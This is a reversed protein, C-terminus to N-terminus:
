GRRARGLEIVLTRLAAALSQFVRLEGFDLDLGVMTQAITPSVGSLVCECGLLGVARIMRDLHLVTSTDIDEVGTLDLVARRVPAQSVRELLEETVSAARADNLPGILPVTLVGEWVQVIPTGLNDIIALQKRILEDNAVRDSIDMIYGYFHTAKGEADRLVVTYDHVWLVRGDQHRIRYPAHEFWMARESHETVEQVVREMDKAVILSAYPLRGSAFEGAPYGTLAEVNDSVFEVPWGEANRWRFVVVPGHSFLARDAPGGYLRGALENLGKALRASAADQGEDLPSAPKGALLDEIFVALEEMCNSSM